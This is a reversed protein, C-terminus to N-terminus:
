FKKGPPSCWYIQSIQFLGHDGTNGNYAGTDFNSEHEVVCAWTDLKDGSVGYSALANKLESVSVIRAQSAAALLLVCALFKFM